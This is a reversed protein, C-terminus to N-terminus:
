PIPEFGFAQLTAQGKPALLYAIFVQALSPDGGRVPAILYRAVVNVAPPIEVVEVAGAVDPTLDTEYVIGADAEGLRVKALVAKVNNEESAVNAVVRGVFDAGYTVPDSGMACLADWAYRGVPVDPAALVLRLGPAALDAATRIGGPNDHPVVIVLRNQTFHVPEGEVVGAAIAADMPEQGASAFVDATAGERLQTVLAQSGAFNYEVTLGPYAAELDDGIRNFADTLSAAAFVTLTGGEAPIPLPVSPSAEATVGTAPTSGVALPTARGECRSEVTQALVVRSTASVTVGSVGLAVSLVGVLLLLWRGFARHM